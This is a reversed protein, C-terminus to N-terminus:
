SFLAPSPRPILSTLSLQNDSGKFYAYQQRNTPMSISAVFVIDM